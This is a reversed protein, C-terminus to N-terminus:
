ENNNNNNDNNNNDNNNNDDKQNDDNQNDDNDKKQAEEKEEEVEEVKEGDCRKCPPAFSGGRECCTWQTLNPRTDKMVELAIKGGLFGCSFPIWSVKTM